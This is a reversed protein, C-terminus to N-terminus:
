SRTVGPNIMCLGEVIRTVVNSSTITEVDYVYRGSKLAGNVLNSMSLTIEGDIASTVQAVFAVNTKSDYSKRLQSRVTYGTLDKSTGDNDFVNIAVAFDTGQDIYLNTFLAM